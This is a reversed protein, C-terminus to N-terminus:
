AEEVASLWIGKNGCQCHLSEGNVSSMFHILSGCHLWHQCGVATAIVGGSLQAGPDM